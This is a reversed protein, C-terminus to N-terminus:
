CSDECGEMEVDNSEEEVVLKSIGYAMEQDKWQLLEPVREETRKKEKGDDMM